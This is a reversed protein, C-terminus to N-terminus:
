RSIASEPTLRMAQASVMLHSPIVAMKAAARARPHDASAVALAEVVSATAKDATSM